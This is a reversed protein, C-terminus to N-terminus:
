LNNMFVISFPKVFLNEPYISFLYFIFRFQENEGQRMQRARNIHRQDPAIRMAKQM